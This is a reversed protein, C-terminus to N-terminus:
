NIIMKHIPLPTLIYIHVSFTSCGISDFSLAFSINLILHKPDFFDLSEETFGKNLTNESLFTQIKYLNPNELFHVVNLRPCLDHEKAM